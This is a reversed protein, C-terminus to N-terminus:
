ITKKFCRKLSAFDEKNWVFGIPLAYIKKAIM